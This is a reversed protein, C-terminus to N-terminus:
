WKHKHCLRIKQQTGLPDWPRYVTGCDSSNEATFAFRVWIEATCECASSVSSILAGGWRSWIQETLVSLHISLFAFPPSLHFSIWVFTSCALLVQVPGGRQFMVTATHTHMRWYLRVTIVPTFLSLCCFSPNHCTCFCVAGTIVLRADPLTAM